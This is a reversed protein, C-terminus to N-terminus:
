KDAKTSIQFLKSDRLPRTREKFVSRIEERNAILLGNYSLLTNLILTVFMQHNIVNNGSLQTPFFCCFTTFKIAYFRLMDCTGKFALSILEKKFAWVEFVDSLNCIMAEIWYSLVFKFM